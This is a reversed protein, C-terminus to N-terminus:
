TNAMESRKLVNAEALENAIFLLSNIKMIEINRPSRLDETEISDILEYKDKLM